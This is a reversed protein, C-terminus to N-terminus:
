ANRFCIRAFDKKLCRLPKPNLIQMLSSEPHEPANGSTRPRKCKSIILTVIRFRSVRNAFARFERLVEKHKQGVWRADDDVDMFSMTDLHIM